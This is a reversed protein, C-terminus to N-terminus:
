SIQEIEATIEGRRTMPLWLSITTGRGPRTTVEFVGGVTEVRESMSRLGLHGFVPLRRHAEALDFGVGDDVVEIVVAQDQRRARVTVRTARAHKAVNTLAEQLTRFAVMEIDPELREELEWDLETEWETREAQRQLQQEIAAALGKDDLLPPRLNFLFTRASQLGGSLNKEVRELQARLKRHEPAPLVTELRAQLAQYDTLAASLVQIADDHLDSALRRREDEQATILRHSLDARIRESKDRETVDSAVGIVGTIRGDAGRVPRLQTEFARGGVPVVARVPEGALARYLDAVLRDHAASYGFLPHGVMEGPALGLVRLARGESLTCIGEADCAFLIVPVNTVVTSLREESRRLEETARRRATIDHLVVVQGTSQGTPDRLKDLTLEYAWTQEPERLVIETRQSTLGFHTRVVEANPPLLDQMTRGLADGATTHLIGLAALNLDVVRGAVDLVVVGDHITDFAVGRTLPSILALRLRVVAWALVCVTVVLAFPTLDVPRGLQDRVLPSLAGALWPLALAGLLALRRRRYLRSLRLCTAALLVSGSFVVAGVYGLNVWYLPGYSVRPGAPEGRLTFVLDHTAANALIVLMALANVALLALTGGGLWGGRGTWRLTFVVWAPPLLCLGLFKLDARLRAADLGTASLEAAYAGAWIATALAVLALSAAASRVRRRWVVVALVAVVCAAGLLYRGPVAWEWDILRL